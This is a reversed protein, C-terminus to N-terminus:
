TPISTKVCPRPHVRLTAVQFFRDQHPAKVRGRSGETEHSSSGNTVQCTIKYDEEDWLSDMKREGQFPNVKTWCADGSILQVMSKSLNFNKTTKDRRNNSSCHAKNCGKNLGRRVEMVYALVQRLLICARVMPFLTIPELSERCPSGHPFCGLGAARTGSFSQMWRFVADSRLASGQMHPSYFKRLPDMKGINRTDLGIQITVGLDSMCPPVSEIGTFVTFYLVSM